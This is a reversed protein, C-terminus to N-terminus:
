APLRPSSLPVAQGRAAALEQLVLVTDAVPVDELCALAAAYRAVARDALEVWDTV